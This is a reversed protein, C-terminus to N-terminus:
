SFTEWEDDAVDDEGPEREAVTTARFVARVDEVPSGNAGPTTQGTQGVEERKRFQGSQSPQGSQSNVPTELGDTKDTQDTQGHNASPSVPPHWRWAGQYGDPKARMGLRARARNATRDAVGAERHRRRAEAVPVPGAGVIERLVDEAEDVASREEDEVPARVLDAATVDTAEGAWAIGSTRIPTGDSAQVERGEVRMRLTTALEGVNCKAHALLRMPGDSEEPDTACLLVSRASAAFGISGNVRGLVDTDTRKNLHMIGVAALGCREALGALPALVRRVHQDRYSDATAPMHAVVPDIVLCRVGERRCTEELAPLDEPLALIGDADERRVAILRVLNLDAGAAELRPRVVAALADEATAIAIPVPTGLLDGLLQGRSLRAALELTLTSKGLGPPGVLLSLMALPIRDRWAWTVSVPEIERAPTFIIEAVSDPTM